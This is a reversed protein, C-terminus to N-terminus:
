KIKCLKKASEPVSEQYIYHGCTANVNMTAAVLALTAIVNGFKLFLKNMTKDGIYKKHCSITSIIRYKTAVNKCNYFNM